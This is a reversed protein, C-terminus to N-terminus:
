VGLCALIVAIREWVHSAPSSFTIGLARTGRFPSAHVHPPLDSPKWQVRCRTSSRWSAVVPSRGNARAACEIKRAARLLDDAGLQAFL